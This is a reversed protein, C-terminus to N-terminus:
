QPGDVRLQVRGGGGGKVCEVCHNTRTNVKSSQQGKLPVPPPLPSSPSSGETPLPRGNWSPPTSLAPPAPPRRTATRSAPPARAAPCLRSGRMKRCRSTCRHTSAAPKRQATRRPAAQLTPALKELAPMGFLVVATQDRWCAKCGLAPLARGGKDRRTHPQGPRAARVLSQSRARRPTVLEPPVCVRCCAGQRGDAAAQYM